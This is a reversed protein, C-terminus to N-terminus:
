SEAGEEAVGECSVAAPKRLQANNNILLLILKNTNPM